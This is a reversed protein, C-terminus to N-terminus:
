CNQFNVFKHFNVIQLVILIGFIQLNEFREDIRCEVGSVIRGIRMNARNINSRENIKLNSVDVKRM